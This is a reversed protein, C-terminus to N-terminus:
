HNVLISRPDRRGILVGARHTLPLTYEPCAWAPWDGSGIANM